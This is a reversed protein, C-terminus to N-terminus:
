MFLHMCIFELKFAIVCLVSDGASVSVFMWFPWCAWTFLLCISSLEKRQVVPLYLFSNSIFGVGNLAGKLHDELSALTYIILAISVFDTEFDVSIGVLVTLYFFLHHVIIIYCNIRWFKYFFSIVKVRYLCPHGKFAQDWDKISIKCLETGIRSQKM